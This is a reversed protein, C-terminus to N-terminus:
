LKPVATGRRRLARFMEAGSIVKLFSNRQVQEQEPPAGDIWASFDANTLKRVYLGKASRTKPMAKPDSDEAIKAYVKKAIVLYRAGQEEIKWAGYRGPDIDLKATVDRSFMVCDTDAYLWADPDILAARRVVMRVHATIFAGLHPMHYPKPPSQRDGPEEAEDAPADWAVLQRQWVHPLHSDDDLVVPAFGDPRDKSVVYEVPENVEVTKGYSHNGVAKVMTGIAGKPGGECTTRLTELRDVYERMSFHDEFTVSEHVQISWRERELQAHEISTLWVDSLTETAFISQMRGAVEVRAYFPVKNGRKTASLRVMYVRAFRHVGGVTRFCRGAPLLAERMAAAYAQNIDYKWVPGSYRRVCHCYGGRMVQERVIPRLWDPLPEVVVGRPMHAQFIRICAAGMTARLPENFTELLISQARTMGHWLGESDREAYRVHAPNTADFQEREFDIIGTLKGHDPAFTALFEALTVGALGLAAIGDIFEWAPPTKQTWGLPAERMQVRLGRLTKGRTLYPRMFYHDSRVLAAAVIVADFANGAWAVFKAGSLEPQLFHAALMYALHGMDRIPESISLVGPCHATLYLPRPTGAEIRTTELDYAVLLAAAAERERGQRMLARQGKPGKPRAPAEGNAGPKM